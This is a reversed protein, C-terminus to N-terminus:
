EDEGGAEKTVGADAEQRRKWEDPTGDFDVKCNRMFIVRDFKELAVPRSLAAVVTKAGARKIIEEVCRASRQKSFGGVPDDLFWIGPTVGVLISALRLTRAESRTVKVSDVKSELGQPFDNIVNWAKTLRLVEEEGSLDANPGQLRLVKWLVSSPLVPDSSLFASVSMFFARDGSAEMGGFGVSGEEPIEVGALVEIFSTKGSGTKGLVAVKEGPGISLSEVKLRYGGGKGRYSGLRVNDLTIAVAKQSEANFRVTETVERGKLFGSVSEVSAAVKGTRALQRGVQVMRRHVTLAYAIFLFLEGPRISGSNVGQYGIWLAVGVSIALVVHVYFSSVAIIKTTRVERQAEDADVDEPGEAQDGYDLWEQLAAAYGTEKRRTKGSTRAVPKSTYLGIIIAILGAIFFVLGLEISVVLMVICVVAFLLGNQLGHVLIGAIGSKIRGIDGVVRAIIDGSSARKTSDLAAFGKVAASRLDNATFSAFRMLNVRQILEAFGLGAGLLVYLVAFWAVPHGSSPLYALISDAHGGPFVMEIVWKLPWPIALRFFVVLCAGVAGRWFWRSHSKGYTVVTNLASSSKKGNTM